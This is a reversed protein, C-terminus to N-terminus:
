VIFFAHLGFRPHCFSFSGPQSFCRDPPLLRLGKRMLCTSISIGPILISVTRAGGASSLAPQWQNFSGPGVSQNIDSAAVPQFISNLITELPTRLAQTSSPIVVKVVQEM